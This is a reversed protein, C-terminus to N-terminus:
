LEYVTYLKTWHIPNSATHLLNSEMGCWFHIWNVPGFQLRSYVSSTSYKIKVKPPLVKRFEQSLGSSAVVRVIRSSTRNWLEFIDLGYHIRITEKWVGKFIWCHVAANDQDLSSQSRGDKEASEAWGPIVNDGAWRLPDGFYLPTHM